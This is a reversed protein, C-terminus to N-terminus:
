ISKLAEVDVFITVKDRGVQIIGVPYDLQMQEKTDLVLDIKKGSLFTVFNAHGPLIDFRGASNNSSVSRAKLNYLEGNPSVV